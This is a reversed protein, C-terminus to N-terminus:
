SPYLGWSYISNTGDRQLTEMPVDHGTSYGVLAIIGAPLAYKLGLQGGLDPVGGVFYDPNFTTCHAEFVSRDEANMDIYGILNPHAAFRIKLTLSGPVEQPGKIIQPILRRITAATAPWSGGILWPSRLIEDTLLLKAAIEAKRVKTSYYTLLERLDSRRKKAESDLVGAAEIEEIMTVTRQEDPQDVAFIASPDNKLGWSAESCFIALDDDSFMINSNSDLPLRFISPQPVIKEDSSIFFEPFYKCVVHQHDELIRMLDDWGHYSVAFLKETKHDLTLREAYSVLKADHPATTVVVLDTLAPTFEKARCVEEDIVKDNLKEVAKCQLGIIRDGSRVVVDVGFQVQGNRGYLTQNSAPHQSAWLDLAFKEFQKDDSIKPLNKGKFSSM